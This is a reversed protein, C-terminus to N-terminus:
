LRFADFQIENQTNSGCGCSWWRKMMTLLGRRGESGVLAEGDRALGGCQDNQCSGGRTTHLPASSGRSVGQTHQSKTINPRQGCVCFEATPKRPEHGSNGLGCGEITTHTSPSHSPHSASDRVDISARASRTTPPDRWARMRAVRGRCVLHRKASKHEPRPLFGWGGCEGVVAGRGMKKGRQHLLLLRGCVQQKKSKGGQTKKNHQPRRQGRWGRQGWRADAALRKCVLTRDESVRHKARAGRTM